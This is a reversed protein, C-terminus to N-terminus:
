ILRGIDTNNEYNAENVTIEQYYNINEKSAPITMQDSSINTIDISSTKERKKFLNIFIEDQSLPFNWSFEEIEELNKSGVKEKKDAYALLKESYTKILNVTEKTICYFEKQEQRLSNEDKLENQSYLFNLQNRKIFDVYQASNSINLKELKNKDKESKFITKILQLIYEIRFLDNLIIKSIM